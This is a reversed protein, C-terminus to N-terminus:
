KKSTKKPQPTILDEYFKATAVQVYPFLWLFGIGCTLISLLFWGTFRLHLCFYKWKARHMLEKSKRLAESPKLTPNDALLYYTQSYSIAAIIGPVILLLSWLFVYLTVLLFVILSTKFNNFGEFLQGVQAKTNRSFSLTFIALGLALPGSIVLSVASGIGPHKNIAGTVLMYIVCALIALGWKGSLTKRAQHMLEKNTTKM